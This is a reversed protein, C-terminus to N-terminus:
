DKEHDEHHHYHHPFQLRARHRACAPPMFIQFGRNLDVSSTNGFNLDATEQWAIRQTAYGGEWGNDFVPNWLLLADARPSTKLDNQPDDHGSMM